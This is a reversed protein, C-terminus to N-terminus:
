NNREIKIVEKKLSNNNIFIKVSGHILPLLVENAKRNSTLFRFLVDQCEFSIKPKVLIEKPDKKLDFPIMKGNLTELQLKWDKKRQWISDIQSPTGTISIVAASNAQNM